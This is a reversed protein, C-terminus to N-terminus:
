NVLHCLLVVAHYLSKSLLLTSGKYAPLTINDVAELTFRFKSVELASSFKEM